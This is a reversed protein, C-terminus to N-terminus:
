SGALNHTVPFFLEQWNAPKVPLIGTRHMFDAYPMIKKPVMTWENLRILAPADRRSAASSKQRQRSYQQAIAAISSRSWTNHVAEGLGLARVPCDRSWSTV